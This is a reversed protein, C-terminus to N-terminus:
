AILYGFVFFSVFLDLIFAVIVRWMAPKASEPTESM